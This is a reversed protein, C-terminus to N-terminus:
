KMTEHQPLFTILWPFRECYGVRAIQWFTQVTEYKTTYITVAVNLEYIEACM